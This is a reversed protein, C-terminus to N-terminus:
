ALVLIHFASNHAPFILQPYVIGSCFHSFCFYRFQFIHSRISYLLFRAHGFFTGIGEFEAKSVNSISSKLLFIYVNFKKQSLQCKHLATPALSPTPGSKPRFLHRSLVLKSSRLVLKSITQLNKLSKHRHLNWLFAVIKCTLAYFESFIKRYSCIKLKKM